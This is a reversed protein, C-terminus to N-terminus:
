VTGTNLARLVPGLNDPSWVEQDEGIMPGRDTTWETMSMWAFQAPTSQSAIRNVTRGEATMTRGLADTASIRLRTPYNDVREVVERQSDVLPSHIGDRVLYGTFVYSVFKGFNGDLSTLLLFQEDAGSHGYTYATGTGRKDEPRVSWTRDRMGITDIAVKRGRVDLTGIVKCPQDFHGFKEGASAVHPDRLGTYELDLECMGPESYRVRYRNLPELCDYSLGELRLATTPMTPMPLSWYNRGYLLAWPEHASPDWVFVGLSCIGLNKRFVPYITASINEGPQDFSFWYTEAWWRDNTPPEHLLDDAATLAPPETM